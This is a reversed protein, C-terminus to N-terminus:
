SRKLISEAAVALFCGREATHATRALPRIFHLIALDDINNELIAIQPSKIM